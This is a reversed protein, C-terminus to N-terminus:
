RLSAIVLKWNTSDLRRPGRCRNAHMIKGACRALLRKHRQRSVIRQLARQVQEIESPDQAVIEAASAHRMLYSWFKSPLRRRENTSGCTADSVLSSRWSHQQREAFCPLLVRWLTANLLAEHSQTTNLVYFDRPTQCHRTITAADEVFHGDTYPQLYYCTDQHCQQAACICRSSWM